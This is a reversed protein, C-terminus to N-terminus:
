SDGLLLPSVKEKKYTTDARSQLLKFLGTGLPIPIDMIIWESVGSIADSRGHMAADFLHDTTKGFSALMLVRDRM